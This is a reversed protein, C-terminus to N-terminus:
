RVPCTVPEKVESGALVEWENFRGRAHHSDGAPRSMINRWARFGVKASSPVGPRLKAALCGGQRNFQLPPHYCTSEFHRNYASKERQGHVPFETSDM